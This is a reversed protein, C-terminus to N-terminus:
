PAGGDALRPGVQCYSPFVSPVPSYPPRAGFPHDQFFQWIGPRIAPPGSVHGRGTNCDLSFGGRMKVDAEWAASAVAFDLGRSDVGQAGHIATAAPINSPDEPPPDLNFGGAGTMGGSISAAAAICSARAYAM